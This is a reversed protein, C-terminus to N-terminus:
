GVFERLLSDKPLFDPSIKNFCSLKELLDKATDFFPSEKRIKSLMESLIDVFVAPEFDMSSDIKIEASGIYPEIYIKEGSLVSKWQILTKEASWGRFLEDRTMRRILRVEEPSFFKEGNKIYGKKPEIFMRLIGEEPLNETLLPNLSHIGEIMVIGNKGLEVRNWKEGRRQNPFDFTPFDAKGETLLLRFTENALATDLGAISEMDFTGDENVPMYGLGLLFDDLAIHRAERGKELLKECVKRTFTTKGSASRGSVLVIKLKEGRKFIEEATEEVKREIEAETKRIMEPFGSAIGENIAETEFADSLIANM